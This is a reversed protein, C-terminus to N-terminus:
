DIHTWTNRNVIDSVNTRSTDFREAVDYMTTGENEYMERIEKVDKETLKSNNASEGKRGMRESTDVDTPGGVHKWQTGNIVHSITTFAVGYEDGLEKISVGGEAYRERIELVADDNLKAMGANEGHMDPYDGNDIADQANSKADGAYLHDPNVCPPNHCKHCIFAGDPIEGNHYSYSFRHAGISEGDICIRGYGDGAGGGTWEWCGTEENVEYRQNFRVIDPGAHHIEIDNKKLWTYITSGAVDFEDAIEAVSMLQEKYMERLTEEQHYPKSAM